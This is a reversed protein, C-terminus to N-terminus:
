LDPSAPNRRAVVRAFGLNRGDDVRLMEVEEECGPVNGIQALLAVSDMWHKWGSPMLDAREVSVLGSKEWHRRWWDPSHLSNLEFNWYPRLHAPVDGPPWEQVLGPVVIGVQGGPRVFQVCYNGLYMDDTGFYHYSDISVVADFFDHAFPLAHSEAYIPFVSGAADAQRIREWNEAPPVWLDAAWVQLDFESALFISSIARGCGLDLIRMGSRLDMAQALFETLLLVNPGMSHELTWDIDYKAALPFDSNAPTSEM